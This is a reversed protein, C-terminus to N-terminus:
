LGRFIAYLKGKGMGDIPQLDGSRLFKGCPQFLSVLEPVELPSAKLKGTYLYSLFILFAEYGVGPLWFAAIFGLQIGEVIIEADSYDCGSDVLLQELNSSLKSLSIIELSAGKNSPSAQTRVPTVRPTLLRRM